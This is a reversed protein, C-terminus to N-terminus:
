TQVRRSELIKHLLTECSRLQCEWVIIVRFRRHRLDRVARADRSRNAAFKARWFAENNRPVTARKCNTHHHWFCGNVFVAWRKSSNAFDPSGPLAKVNKRYRAGLVRLHQAVFLEAQTSLRKQRALRESTKSDRAVPRM